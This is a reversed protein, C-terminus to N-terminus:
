VEATVVVTIEVGVSIKVGVAVNSTGVGVWVNGPIGVDVGVLM